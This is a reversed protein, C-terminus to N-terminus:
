IPEVCRIEIVPNSKGHAVTFERRVDRYGSRVGVATYSGPRLELTHQRFSGLRAVRNITVETLDDSQLSVPLPTTALRLTERVQTLQRQLKPGSQELEAAERWTRQAQALVQSDALREPQDVIRQLRRELDVRAASRIKGARAFVVTEDIELIAQYDNLAQQWHEESEARRAGTALQGIRAQTRALRTEQLASAAEPAKPRLRQAALFERESRAFDAQELAAYGASMARSFDRTTIRRRSEALAEVVRPHQPDLAAAQMLLRHAQDLDAGAAAAQQLLPLLQELKEVRALAQVVENHEPQLLLALQLHQRAQEAQGAAIAALGQQWHEAFLKEASDGIALLQELGRQYGATAAPYQQQRYLQDAEAAVALAAAFEEGAWQEVDNEELRFQEELLRALVEQAAKRQRLSQAEAWPSLETTPTSRTAPDVAVPPPPTAEPVRSPLWFVVMAVILLLGGLTAAVGIQTGRGRHGDPRSTGDAQAPGVPTFEVPELKQNHEDM